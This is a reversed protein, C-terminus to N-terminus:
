EVGLRNSMAQWHRHRDGSLTPLYIQTTSLHKHDLFRQLELVDGSAEFYLQAGLHRLGHLTVRSPDIGAAAAYQKLADHVAQGTIPTEDDPEPVGYYRRLHRGNERTAVFVPSADTLTRGSHELYDLIAHWVPPPLERHTVKGGKLVARYTASRDDRTLDCWKLNAVESRRRACLVYFLLMAYDRKGKLTSRDIQELIRQFQETTVKRAREYANVKPREVGAVPNHDVLPRKTAGQPRVLFSYFSSVAAMRNKVTAPACGKRELHERFAAVDFTTVDNPPCQTFSFFDIIAREYSRRTNKPRGSLWAYLARIWTEAELRDPLDPLNRATPNLSSM